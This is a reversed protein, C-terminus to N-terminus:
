DSAETAPSSHRLRELEDAARRVLEAMQADGDADLGDALGRLRDPSARMQDNPSGPTTPDPM